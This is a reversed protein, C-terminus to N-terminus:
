VITGNILKIKNNVMSLNNEDHTIIILTSNKSIENIINKPNENRPNDSTIFNIDAIKSAVQAMDKRKGKDREGGCGFICILNGDTQKKLTELV